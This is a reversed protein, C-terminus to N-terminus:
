YNQNEKKLLNKKKTSKRKVQNSKSKKNKRLNGLAIPKGSKMM